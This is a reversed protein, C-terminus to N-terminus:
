AEFGQPPRPTPLAPTLGDDLDLLEAAGSSTVLTRVARFAVASSFIPLVTGWAANFPDHGGRRPSDVEDSVRVDQNVRRHWYGFPRQRRSASVPHRLNKRAGPRAPQTHHPAARLALCAVSRFNQSSRQVQRDHLQIVKALIVSRSRAVQGLLLELGDGIQEKSMRFFADSAPFAGGVGLTPDDTSNLLHKSGRRTVGAVNGDDRMAPDPRQQQAMETAVDDSSLMILRGVVAAVVEGEIRRRAAKMMSPLSDVRLAAEHPPPQEVTLGMLSQWVPEQLTEWEGENAPFVSVKQKITSEPSGLSDM